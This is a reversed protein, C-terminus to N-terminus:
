PKLLSKKPLSYPSSASKRRNAKWGWVANVAAKGTSPYLKKLSDNASCSPKSPTGNKESCNGEPFSRVVCKADNVLNTLSEVVNEINQNMDTCRNM